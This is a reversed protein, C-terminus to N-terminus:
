FNMLATKLKDLEAIAKTFNAQAEKLKAYVGTPDTKPNLQKNVTNFNDKVTTLTTNLTKLPNNIIWNVTPKLDSICVIEAVIGPIDKLQKATDKLEKIKPALDNKIIGSLKTVVDRQMESHTKKLQAIAEAVEKQALVLEDKNKTIEALMGGGAPKAAPKKTKAVPACFTINSTTLIFLALALM